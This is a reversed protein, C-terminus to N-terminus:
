PSCKWSNGPVGREGADQRISRGRELAVAFFVFGAVAILVIVALGVLGFPANGVRGDAPPTGTVTTDM